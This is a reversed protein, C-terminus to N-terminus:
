GRVPPQISLGYWGGVPPQVRQRHLPQLTSSSVSTSCARSAAAGALTAAVDVVLERLRLCRPRSKLRCIVSSSSSMTVLLPYCLPSKGPSVPSLLSLDRPRCKNLVIFGKTRTRVGEVVSTRGRSRGCIARARGCSAGRLRTGTKFAAGLARTTLSHAGWKPASQVGVCGAEAQGEM